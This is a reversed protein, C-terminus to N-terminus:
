SEKTSGSHNGGVSEVVVVHNSQAVKGNLDISVFSRLILQARRLNNGQSFQMDDDRRHLFFASVLVGPDHRLVRPLLPPPRSSMGDAQFEGVRARRQGTRGT